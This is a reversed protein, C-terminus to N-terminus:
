DSWETFNLDGIMKDYLKLVRQEIVYQFIEVREDNWEYSKKGAPSAKAWSEFDNYFFCFNSSFDGDSEKFEEELSSDGRSRNITSELVRYNGILNGLHRRTM